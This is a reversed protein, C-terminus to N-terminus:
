FTEYPTSVTVATGSPKGEEELDTIEVGANVKRYSGYQELRKQTIPIASSKHQGRVQGNILGAQKRGIGNDRIVCILVEGNIKFHIVISGKSDKKRLGHIIANEVFPQIMMPPVQIREPDISEDLTISFEFQLPTSLKELELYNELM